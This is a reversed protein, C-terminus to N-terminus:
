PAGAPLTKESMILTACCTEQSERGLPRNDGEYPVGGAAAVNALKHELEVFSAFGKDDIGSAFKRTM